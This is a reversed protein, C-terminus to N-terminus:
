TPYVTAIGIAPPAIRPDATSLFINVYGFAVRENRKIPMTIDKIPNM